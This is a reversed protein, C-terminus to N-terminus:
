AACSELQVALYTGYRPVAQPCGDAGLYMYTYMYIGTGGPEHQQEVKCSFKSESDESQHERGPSSMGDGV